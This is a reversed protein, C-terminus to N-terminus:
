KLFKIGMRIKISWDSYHSFSSSFNQTCQVLLNSVLPFIMRHSINELSLVTCDTSRNLQPLCGNQQIIHSIFTRLVCSLSVFTFSCTLFITWYKNLALSAYSIYHYHYVYRVCVYMLDLLHVDFLLPSPIVNVKKRRRWCQLYRWSWWWWWWVDKKCSTVFTALTNRCLIRPIISM